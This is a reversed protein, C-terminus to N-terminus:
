CPACICFPTSFYCLTTPNRKACASASAPRKREHDRRRPIFSLRSRHQRPSHPPYDVGEPIEATGVQEYDAPRTSPAPCTNVAHHPNRTLRRAPRTESMSKKRTDRTAVETIGKPHSESALLVALTRIALDNSKM